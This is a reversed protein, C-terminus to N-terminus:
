RVTFFRLLVGEPHRQATAVLTDLDCGWVELGIQMTVGAAPGGPAGAM